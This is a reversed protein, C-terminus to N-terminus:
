LKSANVLLAIGGGIILGLAGDVLVCLAGTFILIFCELKDLHWLHAIVKKPFLRCSSTILISAIVSMPIYTFAPLLILVVIM